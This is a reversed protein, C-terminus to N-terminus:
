FLKPLNIIYDIHRDYHAPNMGRYVALEQLLDKRRQQEQSAEQEDKEAGSTGAEGEGSGSQSAGDDRPGPGDIEQRSRKVGAVRTSRTSSPMDVFGIEVDKLSTRMADLLKEFGMFVVGATHGYPMTTYHDYSDHFQLHMVYVCSGFEQKITPEMADYILSDETCTFIDQRTKSPKYSFKFIHGLLKNSPEHKVRLVIWVLIWWLSELDYEHRYKPMQMFYHSTGRPAKRPLNKFPDHPDYKPLPDRPPRFLVRPNETYETAYELDSLKGRIDGTEDKLMIISSASIDGHVWKVLALLVVAIVADRLVAITSPLDSVSHLATGVDKYILRYQRRVQYMQPVPDPYYDSPSDYFFDPDPILPDVADDESVPKTFFGRGDIDIQMFYNKYEKNVFVKRLLQSFSQSPWDPYDRFEELKTFIAQLNDRETPSGEALWVDKLAYENGSEINDLNEPIPEPLEFVKWVRTRKGTMGLSRPNHIPKVTLFHRTQKETSNITYIYQTKTKYNVRKVTPDFGMETPTALVFTVFARTLTELDQVRAFNFPESRVCHSRSFYWLSMEDDEITIGYMWMRRPDVDMICKVVSIIEVANREKVYEVNDEKFKVAVAIDVPELPASGPSLSSKHAFYAYVVESAKGTSNARDVYQFSVPRELELHDIRNLAELAIIRELAKLTDTEPGDIESPTDSWRRTGKICENILKTYAAAVTAPKPSFPAYHRLFTDVPCSYM